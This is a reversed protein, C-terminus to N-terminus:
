GTARKSVRSSRSTTVAANGFEPVVERQGLLTRRYVTTAGSRLFVAEAPVVLTDAVREVEISGRLRMSPRMRETDTEELESELRVIKEPNSWSKRQVTRHIKSVM